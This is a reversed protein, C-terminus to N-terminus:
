SVFSLRRARGQETTIFNGIVAAAVPTVAAAFVGSLFREAYVAALSEVFSFVLMTVGFGLIGWLLVGRPGHRDA